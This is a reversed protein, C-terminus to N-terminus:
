NYPKSVIKLLNVPFAQSDLQTFPIVPVYQLWLHLQLFPADQKMDPDFFQL